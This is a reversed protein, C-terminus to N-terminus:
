GENDIHKKLVAPVGAVLTDASVDRTVVSGSAIVAGNGITVGPNIIAGVGIWVQDGIIIPLAYECGVHNDAPLAELRQAFVHARDRERVLEKDQSDYMEGSLMIEKETM